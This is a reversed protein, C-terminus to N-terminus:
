SSLRAPWARIQRLTKVCGAMAKPLLFREVYGLLLARKFRRTASALSRYGTRIRRWQRSEADPGLATRITDLHIRIAEAALASHGSAFNDISQHLRVITADIGWYELDAAVNRYQQGLGSLEIALNLGLIEPLYSRPFKGIALLYSPLDFAAALFQPSRPFAPDTTAPLTIEQSELLRRYIAPHNHSPNGNGAEDSGIQLLLRKVPDGQDAALCVHDLWCGDVLIAPAMQTIGWRYQDRTLKPPAPPRDCGSLQERHKANLWDGFAQRSYTVPPSTNSPPSWRAKALESNVVRRASPLTDPFALPDLLRHFLRQRENRYRPEESRPPRSALAARIAARVQESPPMAPKKPGHKPAPAGGDLWEGICGLEEESFVGFMRGGFATLRDFPRNGRDGATWDSGAFAALFGEADFPKAGLWQQLPRGALKPHQHYPAALDAKTSFIAAVRQALPTARTELSLARLYEAESAQYLAAGRRIRDAAGPDEHLFQQLAEGVNGSVRQLVAQRRPEGVGPLRWPSTSQVYGLTFGLIEPLHDPGGHGLAMQLAGFAFASNGAQDDAIFGDSAPSPFRIGHHAQLGCYWHAPAQGANEGLLDLYARFLPAAPGGIEGGIRTLGQLWAGEILAVPAHYAVQRATPEWGSARQAPGHTTEPLPPLPMTATRDLLNRLHHRAAHWTQSLELDRLYSQYTQRPDPGSLDLIDSVTNM